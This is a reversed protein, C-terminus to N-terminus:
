LDDHALLIVFDLFTAAPFVIEFSFCGRGPLFFGFLFSRLFLVESRAGSVELGDIKLRSKHKQLGGFCLARVNIAANM